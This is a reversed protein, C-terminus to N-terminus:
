IKLEDNYKVFNYNIKIAEISQDIARKAIPIKHSDFFRKIEEIKNLEKFRQLCVKIINSMTHGEHYRKYYENWKEKLFQWALDDAYNNSGVISLVYIADQSRV